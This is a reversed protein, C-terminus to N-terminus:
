YNKPTIDFCILLSFLYTIVAQDNLYMKRSVKNNFLLNISTINIQYNYGPCTFM